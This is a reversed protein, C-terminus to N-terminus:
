MRGTDAHRAAYQEADATTDYREEWTCPTFGLRPWAHSDCRALVLEEDDPDTLIEVQAVEGVLMLRAM